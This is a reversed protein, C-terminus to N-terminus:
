QWNHYSHGNNVHNYFSDGSRRNSNIISEDNFSGRKGSSGVSLRQNSINFSNLELTRIQAFLAVTLFATILYLLINLIGLFISLLHTYCYVQHFVRRKAHFESPSDLCILLNGKYAPIFNTLASTSWLAILLFDFLIDTKPLGNKWRTEFTIVYYGKSHFPARIFDGAIELILCSLTSVFTLIRFLKFILRREQLAM